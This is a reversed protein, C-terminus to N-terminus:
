TVVYIRQHYASRRKDDFLEVWYGMSLLFAWYGMSLFQRGSVARLAM